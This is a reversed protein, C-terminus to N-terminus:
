QINEGKLHNNILTKKKCYLFTKQNNHVALYLLGRLTM